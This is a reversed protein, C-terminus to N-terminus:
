GATLAYRGTPHATLRWGGPVPHIEVAKIGQTEVVPRTPGPFWVDLPAPGTAVGTLHLGRDGPHSLHTLVGPAARPYARSLARVAVPDRPLDEGTACDVKNLGGGIPETGNQPDGCAQKWVWFAGGILHRDEQVAYRRIKNQVTREPGWYGWEGSWVPLNRATRSALTFGHEITTVPPLGLSADMTISEAYLHPAFVVDPDDAFSGRPMADFGAGSWLISPEAFFLHPRTESTRIRRLVRDYFRGLLLSSTVPAQEGFGPENLPDFGAVSPDSGFRAALMGWADVLRSQVGDRDYYFNTFARDGAPSIDRGTFQCRPAGDTVTAWEPAGDYGDMPSTGAPCSTGPPTPEANWGDQHMDIVTYLGNRRAWAVAQDIRGLYSPDYRGPAPEIKSWSVGLRVVDFGLAAMQRFDDEGLPRTAPFGPRGAHFDVLQNVNVGRLLVQRGAADVIRPHEGRVARLPSLGERAPAVSPASTDSGDQGAVVLLLMLECLTIFATFRERERASMRPARVAFPRASVAFALTVLGTLWGIMVGLSVGECVRVYLSAPTQLLSGLGDEGVLALTQVAGFAAGAWLTAVWGGLFVAAESRARRMCVRHASFLALLLVLLGCPLGTPLSKGHAHPAMAPVWDPLDRSWHSSVWPSSAIVALGVILAVRASTVGSGRTGGRGVQRTVRPEGPVDAGSSDHRISLAGGRRSPLGVATAAPLLAYLVATPVTYSTAWVIDPVGFWPFTAVLTTAARAVLVVLVTGAWVAGFRGRRGGAAYVHTVWATGCLLLPLYVALPAFQWRTRPTLDGPVGYLAFFGVPDLLAGLVVAAALVGATLFPLRRSAM